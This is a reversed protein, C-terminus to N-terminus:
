GGAVADSRREPREPRAIAPRLVLHDGERQAQINGPFFCIPSNNESWPRAENVMELLQTWRQYGMERLPWGQQRWAARFVEKMLFPHLTRLETVRLRLSDGTSQAVIRPWVAAVQSQLFDDCERALDALRNIQIAATPSVQAQLLPLVAHRIANRRFQPDRNTRDRRYDQGLSELYALIEQRFFSLLPRSLATPGFSRVRPIGALGRLGSGRVLRFLVTEAQDDATHGTLVYRAGWSEAEALLAAYRRKRAAEELSGHRSEQPPLPCDVIQCAFGHRQAADYTFRADEESEVGRLRHNVHVVLIRRRDGPSAADATLRLLAMSDPGGSVALIMRRGAWEDPPFAREFRIQLSHRM